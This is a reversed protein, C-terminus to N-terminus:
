EKSTNERTLRVLDYALSFTPNKDRPSFEDTIHLQGVGVGVAVRSNDRNYNAITFRSLPSDWTGYTIVEAGHQELSKTDETAVPLCIILDGSKAKDGLLQKMEDDDVWSMNRTWIAVRGGNKIWRFMYDRIGRKDDLTFFHRTSSSHLIVIGIVSLLAIIPVILIFSGWDGNQFQILGAVSAIAGILSILLQLKNNLLSNRWIYLKRKWM